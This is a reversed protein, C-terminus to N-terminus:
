RQWFPEVGAPAARVAGTWDGHELFEPRTPWTGHEVILGVHAGTAHLGGPTRSSPRSSDQTTVIM